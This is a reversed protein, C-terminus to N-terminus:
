PSLLRKVRELLEKAQMPKSIINEYLALDGGQMHRDDSFGSVLQIKIAPYKKRVIEALQYGDMSPMIVDSLLLDIHERELVDLAQQAGAATIVRYGERGLIESELKLLSPEDDVVLIVGRGELSEKETVSAEQGSFGEASDRPFYLTFCSGKELESYVSIAGDSREVFGYVQSLGLGTGKDGKTSYFPEFIKEKTEEDMGRGTDIIDLVVYDGQGLELVRAECEALSKNATKFTLQGGKPMAHMANIAINLIADEFDSEDVKITWLEDALDFTLLIRSTLTKQLLHAQEKLLSNIDVRKSNSASQRSFALLKKTLKEGRKGARHIERVYQALDPQEDLMEELLEAYGLIIGLMNNYDHAVGGTLKGLADMKQTRRITEDLQKRATIDQAIGVIASVDGSENLVSEGMLHVWKVPGHRLLLRCEISWDLGYGIANSIHTLFHELDDPHLANVLHDLVIEGRELEFIKRLERSVEVANTKLDLKWNGIKAIEQGRILNSESEDLQREICKRSTIDLFTVVAGVCKDGSFIPHSWYEVYFQSGDKRWLVEDDIHVKKQERCARYIHCEDAPYESGDPYHHHICDHINRGLLETDQQYGLMDLCSRNVFTCEGKHNVGYIAEATSNLLLRVQAESEAVSKRLQYQETVDNFVLVMGLIKEDGGRIPAASDAIQYEYGCKAILTTNNSLYVTEGHSIVKDIPNEIPERTAADVIPFIEKLPRGQAEDFCWGTLKEAVPNMRTVDGLEDTTIVADGISDLTITLRAESKELATIASKKETIDRIIEIFASEGQVSSTSVEVWLQDSVELECASLEAGNAIAQCIPCASQDINKNHFVAHSRQGILDAVSRDALLCASKNLHRITGERDVIVAADPIADYYTEAKSMASFPERLTTRVVAIFILWFSFLKFIHGVINSIGYVTIYFTFALEAAMTLLMSAVMLVFVRPDIMKRQSFLYFIAIALILIIAYESLIKFPTLGEGEIFAAPFNGSFVSVVLAVSIVLFLSLAAGRNLSHTLFWPATLLLLSELYRTGIWLQTSLNAGSLSFIPLGQYALTHIMDLAAVSLYGCGLYMLFHNRTFSYVQWAVVMMLVAVTIAFFEILTHFLLFNYQSIIILFLSLLLPLILTNADILRRSASM